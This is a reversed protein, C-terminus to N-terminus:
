RFGYKPLFPLMQGRFRTSRMKITADETKYTGSTRASQTQLGMEMVVATELSDGYEASLCPIVTRLFTVTILPGDPEIGSIRRIAM